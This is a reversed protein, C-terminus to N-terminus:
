ASAKASRRLGLHVLEGPGLSQRLKQRPTVQGFVSRGGCHCFDHLSRGSRSLNRAEYDGQPGLALPGCLNSPQDRGHPRKRDRYPHRTLQEVGAAGAAVACSGEVDRGSRGEHACTGARPYGLVSIPRRRRAAARSIDELGEPHADVKGGLTDSLADALRTHPETERRHKVGGHAMRSGGTPLKPDGRDEVDEAGEGVGGARGPLRQADRVGAQELDHHCSQRAKAADSHDGKVTVMPEVFQGGRAGRLDDLKTGSLDAAVQHVGRLQTEIRRWVVEQPTTRRLRVRGCDLSEQV